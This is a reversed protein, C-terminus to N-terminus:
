SQDGRWARVIACICIICWVGVAITAGPMRYVVDETMPIPPYFVETVLLAVLRAGIAICALVGLWLLLHPYAPKATPEPEIVPGSGNVLPPDGQRWVTRQFDLDQFVFNGM